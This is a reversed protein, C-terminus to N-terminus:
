PIWSWFEVKFWRYLPRLLVDWIPRYEIAIKAYGTMESKLLGEPNPIESTVRVVKADADGVTLDSGEVVFDTTVTAVPAIAVVEGYFMQDHYAWSVLRVRAGRKVHGANEEPVLVEAYMMRSDEVEVAIERQGPKVYRGELEEVRPTVIQGAIPSSVVTREQQGQYNTVISNLSDIEAELAQIAEPQAGQRVLELHAVAEDLQKTDIRAAQQANELDQLSIIKDKFLGEFRKARADSWALQAQATEVAKEAANIEEPTAGKKLLRLKAEAEERQATAAQVRNEFEREVLRLVPDGPQVWEGERVFVKEVMGEVETRIEFRRAPLLRFPGSAEYPYPIFGLALVVVATGWLILRRRKRSDLFLWRVTKQQAMYHGLPKHVAFVFLVSTLWAGIGRLAPILFNWVGWFFLGLHLIAYTTCLLGYAILWRRERRSLVEPPPDRYLWAGFAALSRERLHTVESWNVLLLYGDMKALPNANFLLLGLGSAFLLALWFTHATTGPATVLWGITAVSWLLLQYYLGSFIAWFRKSREPIWALERWDVVLAPVVYYLFAVSIDRVQRGYRKCLLGHVVARASHVLVSSCALVLILFTASMQRAVAAAIDFFHVVLISLAWLIAAVAMVQFPTSFVFGLARTLRGFLRDGSMLRIEGVPLFEHPDFIEPFTLKRVAVPGELLGSRALQRLFIRLQDPPLAVGFEEQYLRRITEESRTGDLHRCLFAAEEGLEFLEESRPDRVYRRPQGDILSRSSVLKLGPRLRPPTEDSHPQTAM